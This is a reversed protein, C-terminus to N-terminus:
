VRGFVYIEICALIFSWRFGEVLKSCLLHFTRVFLCSRWNQTWKICNTCLLDLCLITEIIIRNQTTTTTCTLPTLGHSQIAAVLPSTTWGGTSIRTHLWPPVISVPYVSYSYFIQRLAVKDVMFGVHVSRVCVRAESTLPRRSVAQALARGVYTNCLHSKNKIIIM